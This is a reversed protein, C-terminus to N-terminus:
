KLPWFGEDAEIQRFCQAATLGRHTTLWRWGPRIHALDFRGFGTLAM